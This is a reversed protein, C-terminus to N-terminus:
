REKKSGETLEEGNVMLEHLVRRGKHGTGTCSPSGGVAAVYYANTWWSPQCDYTLNNNSESMKQQKSEKSRRRARFSRTKAGDM